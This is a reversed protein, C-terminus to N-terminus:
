WLGYDLRVLLKTMRVMIILTVSLLYISTTPIRRWLLYFIKALCCTPTPSSVATSFISCTLLHRPYISSLGYM